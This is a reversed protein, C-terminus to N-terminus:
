PTDHALLATHHFGLRPDALRGFHDPFFARISPFRVRKKVTMDPYEYVIVENKGRHASLVYRRCPSHQLGYSGDM